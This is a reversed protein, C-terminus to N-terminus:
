GFFFLLVYGIAVGILLNRVTRFRDRWMEKEDESTM